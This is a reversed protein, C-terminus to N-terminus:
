LGQDIGDEHMLVASVTSIQEQCYQSQTQAVVGIPWVVETPQLVEVSYTSRDLKHLDHTWDRERVGRRAPPVGCERPNQRSYVGKRQIISRPALCDM